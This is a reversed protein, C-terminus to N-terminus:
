HGAIALVFEQETFGQPFSKTTVIPNQYIKFSGDDLYLNWLDKQRYVIAYNNRIQSKFSSLVDVHASVEFLRNSVSVIDKIFYSRSFSPITIYNANVVSTIDGDITIVPDIISSGNKLVGNYTAITAVDKDMKNVESRNRGFTIAFSM